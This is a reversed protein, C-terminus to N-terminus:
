TTTSNTKDLSGKKEGKGFVTLSGENRLWKSQPHPLDGHSGDWLEYDVGHIRYTVTPGMGYSM